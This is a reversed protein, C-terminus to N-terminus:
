RTGGTPPWPLTAPTASSTMNTAPGAITPVTVAPEATTNEAQEDTMYIHWDIFKDGNPATTITTQTTAQPSTQPLPADPSQGRYKSAPPSGAPRNAWQAKEMEDINPPTFVIKPTQGSQPDVKFLGSAKLRRESNRIERIDAIDGPRQSIRNIITNEKTHPNDGTIHVNIKGIRYRDGESINYVLDVKGPEELFRKEIQVDAFVYGQGGYVDRMTHSDKTVFGADFFKNENGKLKLDVTLKETPFKKNGIVTVNRVIYRPGEQIIFTVTAWHHQDDYDLERGIKVQFFGLSQYYATLKEVDEDLKKMEVFGKFIWLIGPGTQIQTRLRSDSVITNGVFNVWWAVKQQSGENIFYTAGRDTPKNGEQVVVQVDNFGKEHYFQEIKRRGEEVQYIDLPAGSTLDTQEKMRSDKYSKNGVYQVFELMPREIVQFTVVVGEPVRQYLPRVDVFKRTATLKKIDEVMVAQDFNRGSRTKVQATIKQTTTARNGDVRVDVVMDASTPTASAPGTPSNTPPGPSTYVPVNRPPPLSEPLRPGQGPPPPLENSAPQNSTPLSSYGTTPYSPLTPGSASPVPATPSSAGVATPPPPLQATARQAFACCFLMVALAMISSRSKGGSTRM